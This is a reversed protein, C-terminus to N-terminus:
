SIEEVYKQELRPTLKRWLIFVAITFVAAIIVVIPSVQLGYAGLLAFLVSTPFRGVFNATLFKRPALGSLGAVFNMVDSPFIPLIFSFIFFITGQREARGTWKEVVTAPALKVVVPRGYRRALWYAFQSALVTSTHIVFFAPLFGYLYGGALMILHGPVAAVIVQIVLITFLLILGYGGFSDMRAILAERDGVLALTDLLPTHFHWALLLFAAWGCFKMLRRATTSKLFPPKPSFTALMPAEM